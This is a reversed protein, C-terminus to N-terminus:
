RPARPRLFLRLVRRRLTQQLRQMDRSGLDSAPHFQVADTADQSFLGDLIVLHFHFHPNLASGVVWGLKMGKAPRTM